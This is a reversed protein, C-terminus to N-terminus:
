DINTLIYTEPSKDAIKCPCQEINYNKDMYKHFAERKNEGLFLLISVESKLLLKRTSSMRKPPDKPSDEMEIFYDSNDRISHHEPYLSAIHCDEGSSLLIIDFKGGVKELEEQYNKIGKEPTYPHVNSEPIKKKDLLIQLFSEKAQRFNSKEHNIPVIREDIMFIHVNKWEIDEKLLQKFIGYVSSGGPIALVLSNKSKRTIISAAKKELEEKKDKIMM